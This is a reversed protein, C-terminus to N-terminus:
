ATVQSREKPEGSPGTEEKTRAIASKIIEENAMLWKLTNAVAEMRNIHYDAEAQRLTGRAVLRPYVTRRMQMEYEVEELQQSLSMAM